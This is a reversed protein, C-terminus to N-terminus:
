DTPQDNSIPDCCLAALPRLPHPAGCYPCLTM